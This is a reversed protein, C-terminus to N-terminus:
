LKEKLCLQELITALLIYGLLDVGSVRFTDEM